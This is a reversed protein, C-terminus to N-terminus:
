ERYDDYIEIEPEVYLEETVETINTTEDIKETILTTVMTTTTTEITTKVLTTTEATTKTTKKSSYDQKEHTKKTYTAVNTTTGEFFAITTTGEARVQMMSVNDLSKISENKHVMFLIGWFLIGVMLGRIINRRRKLFM